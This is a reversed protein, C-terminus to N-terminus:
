RIGSLFSDEPFNLIRDLHTVVEAPRRAGLHRRRITQCERLTGVSEEHIEKSTFAAETIIDDRNKPWKAPNGETDNLM